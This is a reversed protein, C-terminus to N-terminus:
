AAFSGLLGVWAFSYLTVAMNVTARGQVMGFLYWCFTFMTTLGLVLPMALEGKAYTAFMVSVTAVLGLLTAPRYGARRLVDYVEVAALTVVLTALVLAFKPGAKFAVLAVLLLGAGVGAAVKTDRGQGGSEPREEFPQRSSIQTPRQPPPPAPEPPPTPEPEVVPEPEDFSEEFSFLDSHESRSTDLAGLREEGGLALGEFDDEAWDSQSDRWRPGRGAYSSWAEQDEEPEESELIRPVEGTAPETWHPLEVEPSGASGVNIGPEPVAEPAPGPQAPPPRSSLPPREVDSPDVSGPLPFRQAPRPGVPRRPVDGFRPSDSPRRGAAQGEELARAAEEAGIIRVGEGKPREPSASLQDEDHEDM